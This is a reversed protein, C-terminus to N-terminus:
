VLSSHRRFTWADTFSKMKLAISDTIGMFLCIFFNETNIWKWCQSPWSDASFVILKNRKTGVALLVHHSILIFPIMESYHEKWADGKNLLLIGSCQVQHCHGLMRGVNGTCQPSTLETSTQLKQRNRCQTKTTTTIPSALKGITVLSYTKCWLHGQWHCKPRHDWKLETVIIM